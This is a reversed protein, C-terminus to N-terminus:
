FMETANDNHKTTGYKDLRLMCWPPPSLGNWSMVAIILIADNRLPIISASPAKPLLHNERSRLCHKISGLTGTILLSLIVYIANIGHKGSKRTCICPINNSKRYTLVSYVLVRYVDSESKYSSDKRKLHCVSNRISLEFCLFDIRIFSRM